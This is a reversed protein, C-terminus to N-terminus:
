VAVCKEELTIFINRVYFVKVVSQLVLILYVKICNDCHEPQFQNLREM